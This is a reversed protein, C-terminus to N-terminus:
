TALERIRDLILNATATKPLYAQAGARHARDIDDDDVSASLVLVQCDAGTARLREIVEIGHAGPLDLDVVVVDPRM